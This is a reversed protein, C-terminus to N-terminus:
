QLVRFSGFFRLADESTPFANPGAAVVLYLRNGVLIADIRHHLNNANDDTLAEVGQQGAFTVPRQTSLVSGSGQAYGQIVRTWYDDTPTPVTSGPGFVLVTV